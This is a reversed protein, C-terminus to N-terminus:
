AWLFAANGHMSEAALAMALGNLQFKLQRLRRGAILRAGTVTIKAALVGGGIHGVRVACQADAGARARQTQITLAAALRLTHIAGM